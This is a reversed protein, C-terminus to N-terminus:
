KVNFTKTWTVAEPVKVVFSRGPKYDPLKPLWGNELSDFTATQYSQTEENFVHLQMGDKGPIGLAEAIAGAQPAPPVVLSSGAPLSMNIAGQRVEGSLRVTLARNSLNELSFGEQPRIERLAPTWTGTSTDLTHPIYSGNSYLSVKVAPNTMGFTQSRGAPTDLRLPQSFPNGLIAM